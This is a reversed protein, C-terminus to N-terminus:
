AAIARKFWAGVSALWSQHAVGDGSSQAPIRDMLRHFEDLIDHEVDVVEDDSIFLNALAVVARHREVENTERLYTVMWAMVTELSVAEAILGQLRENHELGYRELLQELYDAEGPTLQGDAWAAGVVIEMLQTQVQRDREETM